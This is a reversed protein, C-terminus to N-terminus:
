CAVSKKRRNQVRRGEEEECKPECLPCAALTPTVKDACEHMFRVAFMLYLAMTAQPVPKTFDLKWAPDLKLAEVIKNKNREMEARLAGKVLITKATADYEVIDRGRGSRDIKEIAHLMLLYLAIVNGVRKQLEASEKLITKEPPTKPVDGYLTNADLAALSFARRMIRVRQRKKLTGQCATLTAKQDVPILNLFDTWEATLDALKNEDDQQVTAGVGAPTGSTSVNAPTGSTAGMRITSQTAAPGFYRNLVYGMQQGGEVSSLNESTVNEGSSLASAKVKTHTYWWWGLGALVLLLVVGGIAYHMKSHPEESPGSSTTQLAAASQM